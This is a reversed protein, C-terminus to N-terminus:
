RWLAAFVKIGKDTQPFVPDLRARKRVLGMPAQLGQGVDQRSLQVVVVIGARRVDTESGMGMARKGVISPYYTQTLIQEMVDRQDLLGGNDQGWCPAATLALCVLFGVLLRPPM